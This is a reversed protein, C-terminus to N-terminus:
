APARIVIITVDDDAEAGERFAEAAEFLRQLIAGADLGACGSVVAALRKEYFDEGDPSGSEALGDTYLILADGAEMRSEGVQYRANELLGVPTGGEHLEEISGSARLLLGPQHGANSYRLRGSRFDVACFLLTAYSAQELAEWLTVNLQGLIEDAQHFRLALARLAIQVAPMLMAAPLGKGAVDAIVIGVSGDPLELFDYYDGGVTKLPLARAAIDWGATPPRRQQLLQGQVKAALRVERLLEDRQRRATEFFQRRSRGLRYLTSVVGVFIATLVWDRVILELPARELPGLWQRLVVCLAILALTVPWRHTLASYSVPILYLYGLSVDPGFLYDGSAIALISIAILASEAGRIKRQLNELESM